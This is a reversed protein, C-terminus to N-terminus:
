VNKKFIIKTSQQNEKGANVLKDNWHENKPNLWTALDKEFRQSKRCDDLYRKLKVKLEDFPILKIVKSLRERAINKNGKAHIKWLEDFHENTNFKAKWHDYVDMRRGDWVLLEKQKMIPILETVENKNLGIEKLYQAFTIPTTQKKNMTFVFELIVYECLSLNLQLRVAHNITSYM